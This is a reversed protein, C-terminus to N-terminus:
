KNLGTTPIPKPLWENIIDKLRTIEKANKNTGLEKSLNDIHTQLGQHVKEIVTASSGEVFKKLAEFSNYAPDICVQIILAIKYQTLSAAIPELSKSEVQYKILATELTNFHSFLHKPTNADSPYSSSTITNCATDLEELKLKESSLKKLKNGLPNFFGTQSRIVFSLAENAKAEIKPIAATLEHDAEVAKSELNDESDRGEASTVRTFSTSSETIAPSVPSSPDVAITNSQLTNIVLRSSLSKSKKSDSEEQDELVIEIEDEVIEIEDEQDKELLKSTANFPNNKKYIDESKLGLLRSIGKFPQAMSLKEFANPSIGLLDVALFIIGVIALAAILGLVGLIAFAGPGAFAFLGLIAPFAIGFLLGAMIGLSAGLFVIAYSLPKQNPFFVRHNPDSDDKKLALAEAIFLMELGVLAGVTAMLVASLAAIPLLAPLLYFGLAGFAAAAVLIMLAYVIYLGITARRHEEETIEEPSTPM